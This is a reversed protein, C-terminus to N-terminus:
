MKEQFVKLTIKDLRKTGKVQFLIHEGKTIHNEDFLEVSLDIGYDPNNYERIVWNDPAIEKLISISKEEIIHAEVRKKGKLGRDIGLM